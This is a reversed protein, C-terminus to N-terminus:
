PTSNCHSLWLAWQWGANSILQDGTPPEGSKIIEYTALTNNVVKIVAFRLWINQGKNSYVTTQSTVKLKCTKPTKILLTVNTVYTNGIVNQLAMIFVTYTSNKFATKYIAKTSVYM